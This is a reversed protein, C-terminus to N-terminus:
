GIARVVALMLDSSMSTDYTLRDRNQVVYNVVAKKLEEADLETAIKWIETFNSSTM